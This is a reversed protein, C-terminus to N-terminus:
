STQIYVISITIIPRHKIAYDPEGYLTVDPIAVMQLAQNVTLTSAPKAPDPFVSVQSVQEIEQSVVAPSVLTAPDSYVASTSVQISIQTLTVSSAPVSPDPFTVNTAAQISTQTVEAWVQSVAPDPYDVDSAVMEAVLFADGPQAEKTPDPFTDDTYAAIVATQDVYAPSIPEAPDPYTVEQAVAEVTQGIFIGKTALDSAPTYFLYQSAMIIVQGARTQSQPWEEETEQVTQIGLQSTLASNTPPVMDGPKPYSTWQLWELHAQPVIAPSTWMPLTDPLLVKQSVHGVRTRSQVVDPHAYNQDDVLVEMVSQMANTKGIDEPSDYHTEQLVLESMSFARTVSRVPPTEVQQLVQSVTQPVRVPGVVGPEGITSHLALMVEQRVEDTGQDPLPSVYHALAAMAVQRVETKSWPQGGPVAQLVKLSSHGVATMSRPMFGMPTHYLEWQALSHVYHPSQWIQMPTRQLTQQAMSMVYDMSVPIHQHVNSQLVQMAESMVRTTSQGFDYAAQQVVVMTESVVATQSWPMGYVEQLVVKEFVQLARTTSITDAVTPWIEKQQVKMFTQPVYAAPGTERQEILFAMRGAKAMMTPPKILFALRGARASLYRDPNRTDSTLAVLRYTAQQIVPKEAYLLAMRGARAALAIDPNRVPSVLANVRYTALQIVPGEAYLVAMRGARAAVATDPSKGNYTLVVLRYTGMQILDAM